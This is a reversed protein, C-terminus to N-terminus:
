TLASKPIVALSRLPAGRTHFIPPPEVADPAPRDPEARDAALDPVALDPVAPAADARSAASDPRAGADLAPEPEPEPEPDIRVTRHGGPACALVLLVPLLHSRCM